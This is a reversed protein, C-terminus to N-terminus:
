TGGDKNTHEDIHCPICLTLGNAIEYRLEISDVWRVIHHANLDRRKTGNGNRYGCHQCTFNDCEFVAIRWEKYESNRRLRDSDGSVWMPNNPGIMRLRRQERIEPTDAAARCKDGFPKAKGKCRKSCFRQGKKNPQYEALCFECENLALM